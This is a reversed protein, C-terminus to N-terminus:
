GEASDDGNERLRAGTDRDVGGTVIGLNSESMRGTKIQIIPPALMERISKRGLRLESANQTLIPASRKTKDRNIDSLRAMEATRM